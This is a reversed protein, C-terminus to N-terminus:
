YGISALYAGQPERYFGMTMLNATYVVRLGRGLCWRLLASNRLPVFFGTGPFNRAAAILAMLAENSEAVSHGMFGIGTSYGTIRGRQAVVSAAGRNVADTLEGSRDHGHVDICLRDCAAVDERTAPRVEFGARTEVIPQGQIVALPERVDFGLRAYLSLSRTNYAVQVLRVGRALRAASEDLVSAMLARGIGHDQVDPEVTVPGVSFITCREDLFNSGVVTGDREAVVSFFRPHAVLQSVLDM